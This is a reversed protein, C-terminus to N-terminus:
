HTGQDHPVVCTASVTRTNDARDTATATITYTRDGHGGHREARLNVTFGGAGDPVVSVDDPSSPSTSTASVTLAGGGVGSLADSATVV